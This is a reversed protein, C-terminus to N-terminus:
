EHRSTECPKMRGAKKDSCAGCVAGDPSRRNGKEMAVSGQKRGWMVVRGSSWLGSETWSQSFSVTVSLVTCLPSPSATTWRNPDEPPGSRWLFVKLPLSRQSSFCWAPEQPDSSWISPLFSSALLDQKTHHIESRWWWLVAWNPASPGAPCRCTLFVNQWVAAVTQWMQVPSSSSTWVVESPTGSSFGASFKPSILNHKLLFHFVHLSALFEM